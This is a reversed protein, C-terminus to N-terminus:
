KKALAAMAADRVHKAQWPDTVGMREIETPDAALQEVRRRLTPDKTAIALEAAPGVHLFYQHGTLRELAVILITDRAASSMPKGGELVYRLAWIADTVANDDPHGERAVRAVRDVAAEGFKALAKSVASGSGLAGVLAPIVKPNSSQEVARTVDLRYEGNREGERDEPEHPKGSRLLSVRNYRQQNLRELESVLADELVQERKDPPITLINALAGEKLGRSGSVIWDALRAQSIPKQPEPIPQAQLTTVATISVVILSIVKM